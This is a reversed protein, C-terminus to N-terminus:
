GDASERKIWFWANVCGLLVGVFILTITWSFRVPYNGDLWVGVATLAVAPIAVSWGVLGFMGLGFWIGREKERLAKLKRRQRADVASRMDDRNKKEAINPDDSM